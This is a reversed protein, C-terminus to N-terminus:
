LGAPARARRSCTPVQPNTDWALIKAWIFVLTHRLDSATTQLLKLVYPFIGVAARPVPRRSLSRDPPPSPLIDDGRHRVRGDAAGRALDM